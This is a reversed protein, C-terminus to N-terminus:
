SVVLMTGATLGLERPVAAAGVSARLTSATLAIPLAKSAAPGGAPLPHDAAGSERGAPEDCAAPVGTIGAARGSNDAPDGAPPGSTNRRM